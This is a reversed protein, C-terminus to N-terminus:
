SPSCLTRLLEKIIDKTTEVRGLRERFHMLTASHFIEESSACGDEVIVCQYGRDVADRATNAVCAGTSVGTFLLYKIGMAKSLIM